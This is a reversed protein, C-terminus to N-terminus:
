KHAGDSQSSQETEMHTIEPSYQPPSPSSSMSSSSSAGSESLSQGGSPARPHRRLVVRDKGKTWQKEWQKKCKLPNMIKRNEKFRSHNTAVAFFHLTSNIQCM